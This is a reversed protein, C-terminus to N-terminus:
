DDGKIIEPSGIYGPDERNSQGTVEKMEEEALKNDYVFEAFVQYNNGSEDFFYTSIRYTKGNEVKNTFLSLDYRSSTESKPDIGHCYNTNFSVEDGKSLVYWEGDNELVHLEFVDYFSFEEESENKWICRINREDDFYYDFQTNFTVDERTETYFPEAKQLQQCGSLLLVFCLLILIIKKM